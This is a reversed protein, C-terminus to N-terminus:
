INYVVAMTEKNIIIIDGGTYWGTNNNSEKLLRPFNGNKTVGGEEKFVSAKERINFPSINDQLGSSSLYDYVARNHNALHNMFADYAKGLGLGMFYTNSSYFPERWPRGM